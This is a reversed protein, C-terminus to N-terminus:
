ISFRRREFEGAGAAAADRRRDRTTRATEADARM